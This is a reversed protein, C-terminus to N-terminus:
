ETRRKTLFLVNGVIILLLIYLHSTSQALMGRKGGGRVKQLTEYEAAGRLGGMLASIQGSSLYPDYATVMAATVAAVITVGYRAQGYEVWHQTLNGDAISVIARVSDYSDVNQMIPLDATSNGLYDEPYTQRISEGMSIIAANFQPKFGLFAYDVGYEKDYRMGLSQMMRYGIGTGETLLSVGILKLNRTVAHSLIAESLPAIEPLASAEHDFSVILISGEPISDIFRHLKRTGDTVPVDVKIDVIMAGSVVALLGLFTWHRYDFRLTM